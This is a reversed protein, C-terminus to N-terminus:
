FKNGQREVLGGEGELAWLVVSGTGSRCMTTVTLETGEIDKTTSRFEGDRYQLLSPRSARVWLSGDIDPVLDFVPGDDVLQFHVGDFRVLGRQTAIWLYGNTTQTIAYVPGKPFGNAPGWRERLYQSMARNPDIAYAPKTFSCLSVFAGLWLSLGRIFISKIAVKRQPKTGKHRQAGLM